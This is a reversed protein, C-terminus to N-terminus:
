QVPKTPLTTTPARETRPANDRMATGTHTDGRPWFVFLDVVILAAVLIGVIVGSDDPLDHWSKPDRQRM